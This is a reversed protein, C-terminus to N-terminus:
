FFLSPPSGATLATTQWPAPETSRVPNPRIPEDRFVTTRFWEAAAKKPDM